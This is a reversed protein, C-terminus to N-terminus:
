GQAGPENDLGWDEGDPQAEPEEAPTEAAPQEPEPAPAPALRAAVKAKLTETKSGGAAAPPIEIVDPGDSADDIALADAMEISLPLYKCLRRVVTKRAMEAYDTTWPGSGSAKSRARIADVQAKTMVELQTAGDKLRAIAYVAVIQGPNASWDPEHELKADLGYKCLFKDKEHVIHAEISAIQGSRRALSILGRYGIILQCTDKYPVLYSEGLASGPELGVQAAQMVSNLLSGPTCKLLAPTRGAAAVAVRILRDPTLHKPTVEALKPRAQELLDRITALAGKPATPKQIATESM